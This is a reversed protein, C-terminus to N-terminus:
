KRKAPADVAPAVNPTDEVAALQWGNELYHDVVAAPCFWAGRTVPNFLEVHTPVDAPNISM